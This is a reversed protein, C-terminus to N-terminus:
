TVTVPLFSSSLCDEMMQPNMNILYLHEDNGGLYEERVEWVCFTLFSEREIESEKNAPGKSIHLQRKMGSQELGDLSHHSIYSNAAILLRWSLCGNLLKRKM